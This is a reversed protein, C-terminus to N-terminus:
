ARLTRRRKEVTKYAAAGRLLAALVAKNKDPDIRDERGVITAVGILRESRTFVPAALATVGPILHGRNYVYGRSRAALAQKQLAPWSGAIPSCAGQSAFEDNLLRSTTAAPLASVFVIGAATALIPLVTGVKVTMAVSQCSEEAHIVVPGRGTWVSFAVTEDLEERLKSLRAVAATLEDSARIAATGLEIAFTGLNYRRTQEDQAVLGLELLSVLYRHIKASPIRTRIALEKLSASVDSQCLAALIRGAVEVSKVGQRHDPGGHTHDSTGASRSRTATGELKTMGGDYDNGGDLRYAM